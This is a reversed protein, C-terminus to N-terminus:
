QRRVKQKLQWHESHELKQEILLRAEISNPYSEILTASHTLLEETMGLAQFIHIGLLLGSSSLQQQQQYKQYWSLAAQHDALAFTLSAVMLLIDAANPEYKNALTLYVLAQQYNALELNCYALNLYSRGADAYSPSKIAAILLDKAKEYDGQLCLFSGYNHQVSPNNPELEFSKAYAKAAQKNDAIKQFYFARSYHVEALEPAFELAKDLNLKAQPLNQKQLYSLALNLRAKAAEIRNFELTNVQQKQEIYGQESVCAALISITILLSLHRLM